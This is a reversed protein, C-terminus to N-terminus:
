RSRRRTIRRLRSKVFCMSAPLLCRCRRRITPAIPLSTPHRTSIAGPSRRTLRYFGSEIKNDAFAALRSADTDVAGVIEVGEIHSFHEVQNKAMGGTGIIILRM